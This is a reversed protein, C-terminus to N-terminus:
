KVAIQANVVQEPTFCKPNNVIVLNAKYEVERSQRYLYDRAKSNIGYGGTVKIEDGKVAFENSTKLFQSNTIQAAKCAKAEASSCGSLLSVFLLVATAKVAQKMRCPYRKFTRPM